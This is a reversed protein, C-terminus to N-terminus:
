GHSGPAGEGHVRFRRGQRETLALGLRDPLLKFLAKIIRNVRGNVYVPTGADV